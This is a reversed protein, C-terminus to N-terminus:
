RDSRPQVLRFLAIAAATLLLGGLMTAMWPAPPQGIVRAQGVTGRGLLERLFGAAVMVATLGTGAGAADFLARGVTTNATINRARSYVVPSVALLYMLIGTIPPLEGLRARYLHGALAIILASLMVLLWLPMRKQFLENALASVFSTSLILTLTISGLFFAQYTTETGAVSLMVGLGSFLVANEPILSKLFLQQKSESPLRM